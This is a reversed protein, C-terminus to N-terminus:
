PMVGHTRTNRARIDKLTTYEAELSSLNVQELEIYYNLASTGDANKHTVFIDQNFTENDFIITSTTAYRYGAADNNIVGTGLLTNDAFDINANVTSQLQKYIKCVHEDSAQFPLASIIQFKIMKYGTKGNNTQLRIHDQDGDALQGRFSKVVM